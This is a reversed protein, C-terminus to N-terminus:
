LGVDYVFNHRRKLKEMSYERVNRVRRLCSRHVDDVLEIAWINTSYCSNRLFAHLNKWGEGLSSGTKWRFIRLAERRLYGWPTNKFLDTMQSVSCMHGWADIYHVIMYLSNRSSDLVTGEMHILKCNWVYIILLNIFVCCYVLGHSIVELEHISSGSRVEVRFM